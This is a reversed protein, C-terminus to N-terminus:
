PPTSVPGERSRELSPSEREKAAPLPPGRELQPERSLAARERLSAADGPCGGLLRAALTRARGHQVRVVNSTASAAACGTEGDRHLAGRRVVAVPPLVDALYNEPLTRQGKGRRRSDEGPRGKCVAREAPAQRPGQHLERGNRGAIHECVHKGAGGADGSRSLGGLLREATHKRDSAASLGRSGASRM